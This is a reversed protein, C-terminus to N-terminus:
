LRDLHAALAANTADPQEIPPLHGAGPIVVLEGHGTTAALDEAVAVPMLADEAGGVVTVPGTFGALVHSRDPRDRMGLLAQIHADTSLSEAMTRFRARARRSADPALLSHALEPIVAAAGDAVLREAMADRGTRAEETDATARTDMLVLSRVRHGFIETMALAVYGGMSLGVVDAQDAGHHELLFDCDSAHREMTLASGTGSPSAGFGRLDVAVINARDALAVVQDHWLSHDLPYGHILLVVPGSGGTLYRIGNPAEHLM